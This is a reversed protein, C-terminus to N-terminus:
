KCPLCNWGTYNLSYMICTCTCICTIYMYIDQAMNLACFYGINWSRHSNLRCIWRSLEAKGEVSGRRTWYCWPCLVPQAWRKNVCVFVLVAGMLCMGWPKVAGKWFGDKIYFIGMIRKWFMDVLELQRQKLVSTIAVPKKVGAACM